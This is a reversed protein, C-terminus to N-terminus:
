SGSFSCIKKLIHITLLRTKNISNQMFWIEKRQKLCLEFFLYTVTKQLIFDSLLVHYYFSLVVYRALAQVHTWTILAHRPLLHCVAFVFFRVQASTFTFASVVAPKWSLRAVFKLGLLAVFCQFVSLFILTLFAWVKTTTANLTCHLSSPLGSMKSDTPVSGCGVRTGASSVPSLLFM